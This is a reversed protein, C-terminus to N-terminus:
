GLWSQARRRPPARTLRGALRRQAEEENPKFRPRPAAAGGDEAEMSTAGGGADGDDVV